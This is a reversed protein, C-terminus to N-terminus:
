KIPNLKWVKITEFILIIIGFVLFILLLISLPEAIFKVGQILAFTLYIILGLFYFILYLAVRPIVRTGIRVFFKLIGIKIERNIRYKGEESDKSIIGTKLLKEIQYAVTGSSSFKLAKQIERVGVNNHSYIYWYVQLAKGEISTEIIDDNVKKLLKIPEDSSHIFANYYSKTVFHTSIILFGYICFFVISSSLYFEVFNQIADTQFFQILVVITLIGHLLTIYFLIRKLYYIVFKKYRLLRYEPSFGLNQNEKQNKSNEFTM